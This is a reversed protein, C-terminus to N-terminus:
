EKGFDIMKYYIERGIRINLTDFNQIENMKFHKYILGVGKAYVEFMNVDTVLNFDKKVKVHLTSDLSFGNFNYPQHLLEPTYTAQIKDNVNYANIDWIKTRNPPFVLKVVRVNEEVLEIREQIRKTSWVDRLTWDENPNQKTYRLFKHATNGTNDVFSEGIVTKLLFRTTDRQVLAQIDHSIEMAEYEVFTGEELPYYDYHFSPLGSNDKKCSSVVVVLIFLLFALNKM